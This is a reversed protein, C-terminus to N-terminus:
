RLPAWLRTLFISSCICGWSHLMSLAITLYSSPAMPHCLLFVLRLGLHDLLCHFTSLNAALVIHSWGFLLLHFSFMFEPCCKLLRFSFSLLPTLLFTLFDSSNLFIKLFSTTLLKVFMSLDTFSYVFSAQTECKLESIIKTIM